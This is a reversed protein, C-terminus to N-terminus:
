FAEVFKQVCHYFFWDAIAPNDIVAKTHSSRSKPDEPCIFHALEPWQLNAASHTFFITPLSITDVMPILWNRQRFWYQKTGHMTVAYHLVCNSFAEGEQGVMGQLEDLSMQANGTKPSHLDPRNATCALANRHQSCLIPISSTQCVMRRWVDHSTQLLQWRHGSETETRSLWCSQYPLTHPLCMLLVVERTFENIPTGGMSPWTVPSSPASPSQCQHVSHHVAEQETM